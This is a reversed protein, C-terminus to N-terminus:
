LKDLSYKTFIEGTKPNIDVGVPIVKGETDMKGLPLFWVHWVLIRKGFGSSLSGDSKLVRREIRAKPHNWDIEYNYEKGELYEQAIKIAQEETILVDKM